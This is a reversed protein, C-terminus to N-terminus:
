KIGRNKNIIKKGRELYEKINCLFIYLNREIIITNYKSYVFFFSGIKKKMFLKKWHIFFHTKIRTTVLFLIKKKICIFYDNVIYM